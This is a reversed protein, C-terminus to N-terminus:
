KGNKEAEHRAEVSVLHDFIAFISAVLGSFGLIVIAALDNVTTEHPTILIYLGLVIMSILAAAAAVTFWNIHRHKNM